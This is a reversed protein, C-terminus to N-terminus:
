DLRMGLPRRPLSAAPAALRARRRAPAVLVQAQDFTLGRDWVATFAMKLTAALAPHEVVVITVDTAGAVPDQMGFLAVSEDVVVLKVPLEPVFRVEQGADMAQRLADITDPDDFTSFEYVTRAVPPRAEGPSINTELSWDSYPPKAFVLLERKARSMLDAYREAIAGTDRLLEIYELPATQSRGAQFDPTLRSILEAAHRELDHFEIRRSGVLRDIAQEPSVAAYKVVAGPRTSALGKQVLSGLVDYIRQRPLGAQRSVQSATFSDRKILTAYARAEYTTLGLRVMRDLLTSSVGADVTRV